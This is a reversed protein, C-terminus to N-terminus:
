NNVLLIRKNKYNLIIFFNLIILRKTKTYFYSYIYWMIYKNGTLQRGLLKFINFFFRLTKVILFFKSKKM